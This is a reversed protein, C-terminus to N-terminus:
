RLETKVKSAYKQIRKSVDILKKMSAIWVDLQDILANAAIKGNDEDEDIDFLKVVQRNTKYAPRGSVVSEHYIQRPKLKLILQSVSEIEISM